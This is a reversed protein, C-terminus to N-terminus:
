RQFAFPSLFIVSVVRTARAKSIALLSGFSFSIIILMIVFRNFYLALLYDVKYPEVNYFGLTFAMANFITKGSNVILNAISFLRLISLFIFNKNCSASLCM